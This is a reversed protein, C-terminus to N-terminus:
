SLEVITVGDEGEGYIGLRFSKIGRQERRLAQHVAKRLVGTGKGHIVTVTHLKALRANDIFRELVPLAEDTNMGRLDVEPKIALARLKADTKALFKKVERPTDTEVLIVEDVRATVKMIGAQLSMSGDSDISIVDAMMGLGRLKVKDGPVIDRTHVIDEDQEEDATEGVKDEAENLRRFVDAKEENLKKWDVEEAAKKQLERVDDLISDAIKRAEDLIARAERKAIVTANDREVDIKKKYEEAKKRDEDADRLLKTTEQRENELTIRTSELSRLADEFAVNEIDIRKRADEIVADPLGLRKSIEFANSKGPIGIILKYTPKLTEIDFECSANAVGKSTVAFTKLENYHTTAAILSGRSRAYEIIAIALAAGETPDTGAGLEDFLLLSNTDCEELVGVINVM